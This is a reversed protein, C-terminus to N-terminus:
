HQHPLTQTNILPQTQTFFPKLNETNSTATHQCAQIQFAHCCSQQACRTAVSEASQAALVSCVYACASCFGPCCETLLVSLCCVEPYRKSWWFAGLTSLAAGLSHGCCVVRHTPLCLDRWDLCACACHVASSCLVSACPRVSEVGAQWGELEGRAQSCCGWLQRHRRAM